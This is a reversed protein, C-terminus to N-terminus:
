VGQGCHELAYTNVADLDGSAMLGSVLGSALSGLPDTAADSAADLQDDVAEAVAQVHPRVEEPAVAELKRFYTRLQGTARGVSGLGILVSALEDESTEMQDIGDELEGRIRTQEATMVACFREPTRAQEDQFASCSSVGVVGAVALVTLVLRLTQPKCAM